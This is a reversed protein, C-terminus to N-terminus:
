VDAVELAMGAFLRYGCCGFLGREISGRRDNAAFCDGVM